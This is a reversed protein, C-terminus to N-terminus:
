LGDRQSLVAEHVGRAAPTRGGVVATGPAYVVLEDFGLDRARALAETYSAVTATPQVAGFGLLLSRRLPRDRGVEACARDMRASQAALETWYDDAALRVASPGGYTNWGDAYEAAFRLSKPGHAALLLFPATAGAPLPLTQLGHFGRTEGSWATAGDWVARVGLVVDRWREHMGRSTAEEGRDAGVDHPAGMGLGLVMRGGSVDQVTGARRALSVPSHMTASAVLTGLEIRSTVQAAAALTTFGDALWQGVATPHTLHDYVYAVDYGIEEMDRFDDALQRWPRVQPIVVGLRM